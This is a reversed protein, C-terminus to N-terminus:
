RRHLAEIMNVKTTPSCRAIVLPLLPLADIEDESLKDFQGATMVMAAAKDASIAGM